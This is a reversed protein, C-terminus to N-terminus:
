ARVHGYRAAVALTWACVLLWWTARGRLTALAFVERGAHVAPILLAVNGYSDLLPKLSFDVHRREGTSTCIEAEFRSFQGGAAARVAERLRDRQRHDPRLAFATIPSRELADRSVQPSGHALRPWANSFM